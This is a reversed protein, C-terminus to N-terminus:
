VTRAWTPRWRSRRTPPAAWPASATPAGSGIPSITMWVRPHHRLGAPTGTHQDHRFVKRTISPISPCTSMTAGAGAREGDFDAFTGGDTAGWRGTAWVSNPDARRGRSSRLWPWESRAGLTCNTGALQM